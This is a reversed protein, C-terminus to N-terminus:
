HISGGLADMAEALPEEEILHKASFQCEGDPVHLLRENVGVIQRIDSNGREGIIPM